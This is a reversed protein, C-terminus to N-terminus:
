GKKALLIKGKLFAQYKHSDKLPEEDGLGSLIKYIVPPWLRCNDPEIHDLVYDFIDKSMLNAEWTTPKFAVAWSILGDPSLTCIRECRGRTGQKRKKITTSDVISDSQGKFFLIISKAFIKQSKLKTTAILDKYSLEAQSVLQEGQACSPGKRREKLAAIEAPLMAAAASFGLGLEELIQYQDNSPHFSSNQLSRVLSELKSIQATLQTIFEGTTM